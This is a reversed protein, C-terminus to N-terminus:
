QRKTCVREHMLMRTEEQMWRSGAGGGKEGRRWPAPRVVHREDTWRAACRRARKDAGTEGAVADHRGVRRPVQERLVHATRRQRSVGGVEVGGPPLLGVVQKAHLSAADALPQLNLVRFPTQCTTRMAARLQVDSRGLTWLRKCDNGRVLLQSVQANAM